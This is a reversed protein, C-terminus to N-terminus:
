INKFFLKTIKAEMEEKPTINTVDPILIESEWLEKRIKSEKRIEDIIWSQFSEKLIKQKERAFQYKEKYENKTIKWKEVDKIYAKLLTNILLRDEILKKNRFQKNKKYFSLWSFNVQLNDITTVALRSINLLNDMIFKLEDKNLSNLKDYDIKNLDYWFFEKDKITMEKWIYLNWNLKKCKWFFDKWYKLYIKISNKLLNFTGLNKLTAKENVKKNRSFWIYNPDKDYYYKKLLDQNEKEIIEFINNYNNEKNM